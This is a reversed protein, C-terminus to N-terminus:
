RLDQHALLFAAFLSDDRVTRQGAGARTAVRGFAVGFQGGFQQVVWLFDGFV